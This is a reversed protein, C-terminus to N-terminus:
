EPVDRFCLPRFFDEVTVAALSNIASSMTSLTGSFIGAVFLGPLGPIMSLSAM